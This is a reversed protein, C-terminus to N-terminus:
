GNSDEEQEWVGIQKYEPFTKWAQIWAQEEDTATIIKTQEKLGYDWDAYAKILYKPM